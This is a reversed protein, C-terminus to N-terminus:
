IMIDNHTMIYYTIDEWAKGLLRLSSSEPQRCRSFSDTESPAICCVISNIYYLM